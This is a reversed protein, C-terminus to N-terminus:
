RNSTQIHLHPVERARPPTTSLAPEDPALSVAGPLATHQLSVDAQPHWTAILQDLSLLSSISIQHGQHQAM